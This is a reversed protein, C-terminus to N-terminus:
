RNCSYDRYLHGIDRFFGKDAMGQLMPFWMERGVSIFWEATSTRWHLDIRLREDGQLAKLSTLRAMKHWM